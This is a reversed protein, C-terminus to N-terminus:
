ILSIRVHHDGRTQILLIHASRLLSRLFCLLSPHLAGPSLFDFTILSSFSMWYCWRRKSWAGSKEVGIEKAKDSPGIDHESHIPLFWPTNPTFCDLVTEVRLMTLIPCRHKLPLNCLRPHLSAGPPVEARRPEKM